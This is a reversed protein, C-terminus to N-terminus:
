RVPVTHVITFRGFSQADVSAFNGPELGAVFEKQSKTSILYFTPYATTDQSKDLPLLRVGERQALYTLAHSAKFLYNKNGGLFATRASGTRATIYRTIQEMEGLYVIDLGARDPRVSYSATDRFNKGIAVGNTVFLIALVTLSVARKLSKLHEAVFQWWLGLFFFPMFILILFYRLSIEYAVPLILVFLIGMYATILGLFLKADTDTERGFARVSLVLGGLFFLVGLFGVLLTAQNKNDTIACTDADYYASSVIQINAATFCEGTHIAKDLYTKSTEQKTRVGGFFAQINEGGTQAEHIFQPINLCLSVLLVVLFYRILRRNKFALSGFSFIVLIPLSALLFTHLQVGVGVAVGAVGSWLYKRRSQSGFVQLLAYLLLMTWFPTSNPNWAFRSYKVAYFSCAFLATLALATPRDFYKRFLLFLLPIALMSFFLDAYAMRDPYDGFLEAAVIEFYYFAPGLRFNTGGAKPGLLPWPNGGDVVDSVTSADRAQDANMRLWDHFHYTRLFIGLLLIGGLIFVWVPIPKKRCLLAKM